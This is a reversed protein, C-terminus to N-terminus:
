RATRRRPAALSTATPTTPTPMRHSRRAARATTGSKVPSCSAAKKMTPTTQQPTCRVMRDYGRVTLVNGDVNYTTESSLYEAGSQTHYYQQNSIPVGDLTYTNVFRIGSVADTTVVTYSDATYTYDSVSTTGYDIRTSQTIRGQDDYDYTCTISGIYDSEAFAEGGTAYNTMNGHDDYTYHDQYQGTSGTIDQTVLRGEEDYTNTM